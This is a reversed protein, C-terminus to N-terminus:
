KFEPHAEKFTKYFRELMAYRERKKRRALVQDKLHEERHNYYWRQQKTLKKTEVSLSM